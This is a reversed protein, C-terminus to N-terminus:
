KGGIEKELKNSESQRRLSEYAFFFGVLFANKNEVSAENCNLMSEFFSNLSPNERELRAKFDDMYTDDKRKFLSTLYLITEENVVPLGDPTYNVM